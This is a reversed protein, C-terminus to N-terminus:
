VEAPAGMVHIMFALFAALGYVALAVRTVTRAQAFIAGAEPDDLVGKPPATIRYVAGVLFLFVFCGVWAILRTRRAWAVAANDAAHGPASTEAVEREAATRAAPGAAAADAVSPSADDFPDEDDGAQDYSVDDVPAPLVEALVAEARARDEEAVVVRIGIGSIHSFLGGSHGSDVEAEIGAEALLSAIRHAEFANDFRAIETVRAM